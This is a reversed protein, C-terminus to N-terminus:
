RSNILKAQHCDRKTATAPVSLGKLVGVMAMRMWGVTNLEWREAPVPAGQSEESGVHHVIGLKTGLDWQSQSKEGRQEESGQPSAEVGQDGGM